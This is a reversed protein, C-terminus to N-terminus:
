VADMRSIADEAVAEYGDEIAQCERCQHRLWIYVREGTRFSTASRRVLLGPDCRCFVKQWDDPRQDNM